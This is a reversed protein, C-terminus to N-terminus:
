ACCTIYNPLLIYKVVPVINWMLLVSMRLSISTAYKWEIIFDSIPRIKPPYNMKSCFSVTNLRCFFITVVTAPVFGLFEHLHRNLLNCVKGRGHLCTHENIFKVTIVLFFEKVFEATCLILVLIFATWINNLHDFQYSHPPCLM